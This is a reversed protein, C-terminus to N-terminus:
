FFFVQNAVYRMDDQNPAREVGSYEDSFAVDCAAAKLSLWSIGTRRIGVRWVFMAHPRLLEAIDEPFPDDAFSERPLSAWCRIDNLFIEKPSYTKGDEAEFYTEWDCREMVYIEGEIRAIQDFPNSHTTGVLIFVWDASYKYLLKFYWNPLLWDGLPRSQAVAVRRGLHNGTNERECKRPFKSAGIHSFSLRGAVNPIWGVYLESRTM